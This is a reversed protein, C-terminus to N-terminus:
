RVSPWIIHWVLYDSARMTLPAIFGSRRMLACALLNSAILRAIIAIAVGAHPGTLYPVFEAAEYLSVIAAAIWFIREPWRNKTLLSFVWVLFPLLFLRLITELFIAGYAFIPLSYPLPTADENSGGSMVAQVITIIGLAIGLLLPVLIRARNSVRPDWMDPFGVRRSLFIGAAGLVAIAAIFPWAIAGKSPIYVWGPISPLILRVVIAIVVLLAFTTTSARTYVKTM